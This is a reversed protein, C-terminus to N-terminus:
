FIVIALRFMKRWRVRPKAFIWQGGYDAAIMLTLGPNHQTLTEVERIKQCLKDSFRSRDGIFRLRVQHQHLMAVERELALMFIEMLAGVEQAPRRWNESSFAFLTLVPINKKRAPLLLKERRKLALGIALSARCLVNKRGVAM